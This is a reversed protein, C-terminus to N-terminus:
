MCVCERERERGWQVELQANVRCYRELRQRQSRMLTDENGAADVQLGRKEKLCATVYGAQLHSAVCWMPGWIILFFFLFFLLLVRM